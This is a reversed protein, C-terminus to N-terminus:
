KRGNPEATQREFPFIFLFGNMVGKHFIGIKRCIKGQEIHLNFSYFGGNTM